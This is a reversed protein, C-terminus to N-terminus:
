AHALGHSEEWLGEQMWADSGGMVCHAQVKRNRLISMALRGVHGKYSLTFVVKNELPAGFEADTAALREDLFKFQKVMTPPDQYPNPQASAGVDLNVSSPLHSKQFDVADRLDLVVM